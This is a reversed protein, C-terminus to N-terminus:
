KFEKLEDDDDSSSSDSSENEDEKDIQLTPNKLQHKNNQTFTKAFHHDFNYSLDEKTGGNLRMEKDKVYKHIKSLFESGEGEFNMKTIKNFLQEATAVNDLKRNNFFQEINRCDRLLFDLGMPHITEVSQSVDVVWIREEFWLLNFANFDAHVLNCKTYLDVLIQVCQDYAKKLEDVNLKADKLKPAPVSDKGIFSMILVHRRLLIADPCPIDNSKMKILNHMEKEAWLRVIKQPNLHKFRNKFRYDDAIYKERTKFENLTTKYVKLICESPVVMELPKGGEAYFITAEKGTSIVGGLTELVNSNIFKFIILRTKPDLSMENTSKDHKDNLRNARKEEHISHSKLTNYVNNPLRMDISHNDGTEFEPPFKMVKNANHRGNLTTDHKSIMNQGKGHVGRKFKMKLLEDDTDDTDSSLEPRNKFDL